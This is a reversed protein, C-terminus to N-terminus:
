RHLWARRTLGQAILVCETHNRLHYKALKKTQEGAVATYSLIFPSKEVVVGDLGAFVDALPPGTPAFKPKFQAEGNYPIRRKPEFM